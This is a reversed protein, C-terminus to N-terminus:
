NKKGEEFRPTNARYSKCRCYSNSRFFLKKRFSDRGVYCMCVQEFAVTFISSCSTFYTDFDVSFMLVFDWIHEFTVVFVALSGLITM